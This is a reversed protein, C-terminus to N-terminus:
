RVIKIKIRDNHKRNFKFVEWCNRMSEIFGVEKRLKVFGFGPKFVEWESNIGEHREARDFRTTSMTIINVM